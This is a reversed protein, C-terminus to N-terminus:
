WTVEGWGHGCAGCRWKGEMGVCCGGGSVWTPMNMAWDYTPMGYSVIQTRHAGCSPCAPQRSFEFDVVSNFGGAKMAGDCGACLVAPWDLGDRIAEASVQHIVIEDPTATPLAVKEHCLECRGESQLLIRGAAASSDGARDAPMSTNFENAFQILTRAVPSRTPEGDVDSLSCGAALEAETVTPLAAHGYGSEKAITHRLGDNVAVVCLVTRPETEVVVIAVDGPQANDPVEWARYPAYPEMACLLAEKWPRGVVIRLRHINNEGM